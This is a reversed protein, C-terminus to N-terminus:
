VTILYYQNYNTHRIGQINASTIKLDMLHKYGVVNQHSSTSSCQVCKCNHRLWTGHYSIEDHDVDRKDSSFYLHLKKGDKSVSCSVPFEESLM